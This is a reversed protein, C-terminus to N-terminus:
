SGAFAQPRTIVYAPAGRVLLQVRYTLGEAVPDVGPPPSWVFSTSRAYPVTGVYGHGSVWFRVEPRPGPPPVLSVATLAFRGERQRPPATRAWPGRPWPKIKGDVRGDCDDDVRRLLEPAGPHVAAWRDNCDGQLPSFGDGDSDQCDPNAGRYLRDLRERLPDSIRWRWTDAVCGLNRRAGAALAELYLDNKEEPTAPPEHSRKYRDLFAMFGRVAQPGDLLALQFGFGGWALESTIRLDEECLSDRVCRAWDAAPERLYRGSIERWERVIEEPAVNGFGEHAYAYYYYSIFDTWAHPYDPPYAVYQSFLDFNHTLEHTLIGSPNDAAIEEWFSRRFEPVDLMEVGKAGLFGCGLGGCSEPVIAVPLPGEGAPHAGVLDLLHQYILDIRDVYAHILTESLGHPGTWTDPLYVDVYRGHYRTMEYTKGNFALYSVREGQAFAPGALGALVLVAATLRRFSLSPM